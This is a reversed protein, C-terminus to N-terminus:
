DAKRRNKREKDKEYVQWVLRKCIKMEEKM